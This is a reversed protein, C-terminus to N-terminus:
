SSASSNSASGLRDLAAQRNREFEGPAMAESRELLRRYWNQFLPLNLKQGKEAIADYSEASLRDAWGKERGCFLEVQAGEDGMVELYRERAKVRLIGVKVRDERGDAYKVDLEEGGILNILESM